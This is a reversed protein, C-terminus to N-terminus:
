SYSTSLFYFFTHFGTGLGISSLIGLVIWYGYWFISSRLTHLKEPDTYTEIFYISSAVFISFLIIIFSNSIVSKGIHKFADIIYLCFYKSILFPHHYINLKSRETRYLKKKTEINETLNEITKEISNLHDKDMVDNIKKDLNNRNIIKNFLIGM